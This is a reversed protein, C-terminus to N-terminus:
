GDNDHHHGGEGTDRTTLHKEVSRRLGGDGAEGKWRCRGLQVVQSETETRTACRRDGGNERLYM